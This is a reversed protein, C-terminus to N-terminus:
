QTKYHAIVIKLITNIKKLPINKAPDILLIKMRARKEQIFNKDTILNGEVIGLYPQHFKKHTWLYCFMKGNYCYFPMGYKWAETINNDQKLIHKRLFQLCSKVPEDHQLFYNDVPRLM